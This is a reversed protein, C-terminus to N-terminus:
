EQFFLQSSPLLNSISWFLFFLLIIMMGKPNGTTGSTYVVTCCQNIAMNKHREELVDDSDDERGLEMFERWSIVDSLGELEGSYQVIKKLEPLDNKVEWVKKAMKSDEVVLINAKCDGLIFKNTEM